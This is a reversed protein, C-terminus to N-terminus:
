ARARARPVRGRKRASVQGCVQCANYDNKHECEALLHEPLTPIEVIQTCRTCAMLFPCDQWYHLDLKAETADPGCGGCFQCVGQTETGEM